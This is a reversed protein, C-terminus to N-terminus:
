SLVDLYGTFYFFATLLTIPYALYFFALRYQRLYLRHLGLYGLLFALVVTFSKSKM